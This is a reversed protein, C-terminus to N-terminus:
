ENTTRGLWCAQLATLDIIRPTSHVYVMTAARCYVSTCAPLCVFWRYPKNHHGHSESPCDITAVICTSEVNDIVSQLSMISRGEGDPFEADLYLESSRWRNNFFVPSTWWWWLTKLRYWPNLMPTSGTHCPFIKPVTLIKKLYVM